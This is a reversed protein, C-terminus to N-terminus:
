CIRAHSDSLEPALRIAFTGEKTDSINSHGTPPMSYHFDCDIIRTQADGGFTFSQSEEAIVRNNPSNLTFRARISGADAEEVSELTM